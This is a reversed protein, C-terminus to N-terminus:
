CSEGIYGLERPEGPAGPFGYPEGNRGAPLPWGQGGLAQYQDSAGCLWYFLEAVDRCIKHQEAVGPGGEYYATAFDFAPEKIWDRTPRTTRWYLYKLLHRTGTGEGRGARHWIQFNTIFISGAPAATKVVGRINDMHSMFRQQNRYFHSFPLVETPGMEAPTDQPYYFVYLYNLHAGFRYNSDLHWIQPDHIPLERRHHSMLVPLHFDAGLLSRIVGTAVPNCIVQEVFWDEDYIRSIEGGKHPGLYQRARRNIEDPVVGELVMHGQKCFELVQSDNLTPACDYTGLAM